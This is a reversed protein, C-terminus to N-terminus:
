KVPQRSAAGARGRDMAAKFRKAVPLSHVRSVVHLERRVSKAEECIWDELIPAAELRQIVARMEPGALALPLALSGAVYESLNNLVNAKRLCTTAECYLAAFLDWRWRRACAQREKLFHGRMKRFCVVSHLLEVNNSMCAAAEAGGRVDLELAAAVLRLMAHGLYPGVLPLATVAQLLTEGKSTDNARAWKRAATVLQEPTWSRVAQKLNASARKQWFVVQGHRRRLRLASALVDEAAATRSGPIVERILVATFKPNRVATDLFLLAVLTERPTRARRGATILCRLRRVEPLEDMSDIPFIRKVCLLHLFRQLQAAATLKLRRRRQADTRTGDM